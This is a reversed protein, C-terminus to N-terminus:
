DVTGITGSEDAGREARFRGAVGNGRAEHHAHTCARRVRVQEDERGPPEPVLREFVRGGALNM